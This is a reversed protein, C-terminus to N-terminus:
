IMDRFHTLHSILETLQEKSFYISSHSRDKEDGTLEDVAIHCADMTENCEITIMNEVDSDTVEIKAWLKM